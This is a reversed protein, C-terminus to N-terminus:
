YNRQRRLAATIEPFRLAALAALYVGASVAIVSFLAGARLVVTKVTAGSQAAMAPPAEPVAPVVAPSAVPLLFEAAVFNWAAWTVVTLVGTAVLVQVLPKLFDGTAGGIIGGAAGEDGAGGAAAARWLYGLQFATTLLSAVALGTAGWLLMLGIAVPINLAFVLTAARTQIRMRKKASLARTLLSVLGSLPIALAFAILIPRLAATDGANFKGYEFLLQTVPAALIILGAAAPLTVALILRYAHVFNKAFAADDGASASTTLAPFIVNTVTVTFLGTPLETIRNAFYFVSAAQDDVGLALFRSFFLNIQQIGAGTFAPIFLLKLKAWSQEDTGGAADGGTAVAGGATEKKLWRWRWGVRRLALAPTVLQLVGGALWGACVCLALQEGDMGLCVGGALLAGIIAVNLLVPGLSTVGFKGFLNLAAIFVAALCVMPMYPMFPATLRAAIEYRPAVEPFATLVFVL